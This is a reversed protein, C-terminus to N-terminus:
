TALGDLREESGGAASVQPGEDVDEVGVRHEARVAAGGAALDRRHQAPRALHGPARRHEGLGTGLDM